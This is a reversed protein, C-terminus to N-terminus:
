QIGDQNHLKGDKLLCSSFVVLLRLPRQLPVNEGIKIVEKAKM